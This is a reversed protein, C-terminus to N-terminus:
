GKHGRVFSVVLLLLPMFVMTGVMLYFILDGVQFVQNINKPTMAMLYCIPILLYIAKGSPIRFLKKLGLSAVYLSVVFTTFIVLIWLPIFFTEFREFFFDQLEISKALEMLPFVLTITEGVGMIGAVALVIVAYILTPVVVGIFVAKRAEGPNKMMSQLFLIVEFGIFSIVTGTMGKIIPTAGEFFPRIHNIEFKSSSLAIIIIIFLLIFPFYLETLRFIAYAGGMILYIASAIFIIITVQIPTRDLIFMRILEAMARVEYAAFVTYYFTAFLTLWWAIFKGVIVDSYQFYTRDPYRNNLHVFALSIFVVLCGVILVSVWGSAAKSASLVERPLTIMGVGLMTSAIGVSVQTTSLLRNSNGNM